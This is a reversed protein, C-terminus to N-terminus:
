LQNVFDRLVRDSIQQKSALAKLILEDITGKAVLDIRTIKQHVESGGRYNRGEAQLDDELSFSRSYFISLDADTLNIGIGGARPHGVFVRCSRDTTFRELGAMKEDYSTDGTIQVYGLKKEDLLATIQRIDEKFCAWVLCKNYLPAEELLESLAELKPNKKFVHVSGDELPLFGSIIQQLRLAKTLAITASSAQSGLYTIFDQKMEDYATKQDKYLDIYIEKRVLPPLDLCDEKKVHISLPKIKENITDLAGPRLQWNPFHKFSAMGANRDYFYRQRFSFFNAGFTAGGDIIRFQSFIDMPTNLIPTGTLGLKCKTLDALKILAKTRKSKPSKAKHLEDLILVDPKWDLLLEYLDKILLSEYNLIVISGHQNERSPGLSAFTKTRKKGSGKLVTVSKPSIASFNILERRWNELVIIPAVILTKLPGLVELREELIKIAALTKGVGVPYFVAFGDKGRAADIADVQHQWLKPAEGRGSM